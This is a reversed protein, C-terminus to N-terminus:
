QTKTRDRATEAVSLEAQIPPKGIATGSYVIWGQSHSTVLLAHVNYTGVDAVLRMGNTTPDKEEEILRGNGTSKQVASMCRRVLAEDATLNFGFPHHFAVVGYVTDHSPSLWRQHYGSSLKTEPEQTWGAPIPCSAHLEERWTPVGDSTSATANKAETASAAYCANGTPQSMPSAGGIFVM